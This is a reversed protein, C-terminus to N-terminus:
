MLMGQQLILEQRRDYFHKLSVEEEPLKILWGDLTYRAVVFLIPDRRTHNRIDERSFPLVYADCVSVM